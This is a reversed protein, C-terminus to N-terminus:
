WELAHVRHTGSLGKLALSRPAGSKAGGVADYVTDSVLIEGGTAASAIRAALIVTRGFFDNNEKIVEGAHIGIRVKIVVDEGFAHQDISRQIAVACDVASAPEPFVLMFGDGATKVISGRHASVADRVIQAHARLLSQTRADGLQENLVTYGEIDSFLV